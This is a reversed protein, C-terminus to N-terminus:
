AMGHLNVAIVMANGMHKFDWLTCTMSQPLVQSQWGKLELIADKVLVQFPLFTITSILPHICWRHM